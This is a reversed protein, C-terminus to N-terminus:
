DTRKWKGGTKEWKGYDRVTVNGKATVTKIAALRHTGDIVMTENGVRVVAIPGTSLGFPQQDKPLAYASVQAPVVYDQITKLSNVDVSVDSFKGQFVGATALEGADSIQMERSRPLPNDAVLGAKKMGASADSGGYGSGVSITGSGGGSTWRGQEDRPENSVDNM